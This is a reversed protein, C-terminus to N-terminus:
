HSQTWAWHRDSDQGACQQPTAARHSMTRGFRRKPFHSIQNASRTGLRM